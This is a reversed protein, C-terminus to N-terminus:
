TRWYNYKVKSIIKDQLRLTEKVRWIFDPEDSIKNAVLYKALEIPKSQKLYKLPVCHVSDYKCEVLLKWGHTTRKQHLNNNIYKIFGDVKIANRYYINYGTAETLLPYHRGEYDVQSLINEAIINVTLKEM